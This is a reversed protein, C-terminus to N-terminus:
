DITPRNKRKTASTMFWKAYRNSGEKSIIGMKHMDRLINSMKREMTHRDYDAHFHHQIAAMIEARSRPRADQLLDRIHAIYTEKSMEQRRLIDPGLETDRTGEGLFSALRINPFRGTVLGKARLYDAGEREVRRKMFVDYLLSIEAPQLRHSFLNFAFAYDLVKGQITVQVM